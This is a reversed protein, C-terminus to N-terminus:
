TSGPATPPTSPDTSTDAAPKPTPPRAAPAPILALRGPASFDGRPLDVFALTTGDPSVGHLFHYRTSDHSVADRRRGRHARRLPPRRQRVPLDPGRPRRARSRQQDAAPGRDGGADAVVDPELDLRWLLGDGNLLLGRGDPAWNPAELLVEDTTYVLEPRVGTSTSCGCEARQGPRLRRYELLM